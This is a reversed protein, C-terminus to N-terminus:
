IYVTVNHGARFPISSWSHLHWSLDELGKIIVNLKTWLTDVDSKELRFDFMADVQQQGHQQQGHKIKHECPLVPPVNKKRLAM